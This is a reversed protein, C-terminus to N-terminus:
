KQNREREVAQGFAFVIASYDDIFDECGNSKMLKKIEDLEIIENRKLVFHPNNILEVIREKSMSM